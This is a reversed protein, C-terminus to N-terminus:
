VLLDSPFEYFQRLIIRIIPMDMDRKVSTASLSLSLTYISNLLYKQSHNVNTEMNECIYFPEM